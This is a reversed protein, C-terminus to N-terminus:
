ASDSVPRRARALRVSGQGSDDQARVLNKVGPLDVVIRPPNELVFDKPPFSGDGLLTVVVTSGSADVVIEELSHALEGRAPSRGRGRGGGCRARAAPDRSRRSPHRSFSGSAVGRSTPRRSPPLPSGPSKSPVRWARRRRSRIDYSVGERHAITLRSDPEEWRRSRSSASRHCWTERLRRATFTDTLGFNPLDVVLLDPRPSTRRTSCRRTPRSVLRAGDADENFAAQTLHQDRGGASTTPESAAPGSQRGRLMRPSRREQGSLAASAPRWSWPRGASATVRFATRM